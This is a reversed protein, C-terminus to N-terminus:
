TEPVTLKWYRDRTILWLVALVFLLAILYIWHQDIIYTYRSAALNNLVDYSTHFLCIILLSNGSFNWLWTYLFSFLVTSLTFLSINWPFPARNLVNSPDLIAPLHWIGWFVGIILSAIWPGHSAQLRPLAFGRWGIEEGTILISLLLTMGLWIPLIRPLISLWVLVEVPGDHLLVTGSILFVPVILVIAYNGWHVRWRLLRKLIQYLGPKGECIATVAIASLAPGFLGIWALFLNNKLVVYAFFLMVWSYLFALAFFGAVPYQRIWGFLQNKNM